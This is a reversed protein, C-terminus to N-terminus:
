GGLRTVLGAATMVARIGTGCIKAQSHHGRRKGIIHEDNTGSHHAHGTGPCQLPGSERHDHGVRLPAELDLDVYELAYNTGKVSVNTVL